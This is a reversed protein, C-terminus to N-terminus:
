GDVDWKSAPMYIGKIGYEGPPIPMFNDDLGDWVESFKGGNEATVTRAVGCAFQSIIWDPNKSDVIALTVRYTKPLPGDVPLQYQITAGNSATEASVASFATSALISLMIILKVNIGSMMLGGDKAIRSM